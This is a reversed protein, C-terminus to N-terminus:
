LSKFGARRAAAPLPEAGSRPAAAPYPAFAPRLGADFDEGAVLYSIPRPFGRGNQKEIGVTPPPNSDGLAARLSSGVVM